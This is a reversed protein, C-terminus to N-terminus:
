RLHNNSVDIGDDNDLFRFDINHEVPQNVKATTTVQPPTATNKKKITNPQKTMPIYVEMDFWDELKWASSTHTVKWDDGM